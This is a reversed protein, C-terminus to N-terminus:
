SHSNLGVDYNWSVGEGDEVWFLRRTFWDFTLSFPQDRIQYLVEATDPSDGDNQYM